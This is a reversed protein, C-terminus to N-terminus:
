PGITYRMPPATMCAEVHDQTMAQWQALPLCATRPGRNPDAAARRQLTRQLDLHEFTLCLKNGCSAVVRDGPQMQEDHHMAFYYLLQVNYKVTCFTAQGDGTHPDDKHKKKRSGTWEFCGAANPESTVNKRDAFYNNLDHYQREGWHAQLIQGTVRKTSGPRFVSDLNPGKRGGANKRPRRMPGSFDIAQEDSAASASSLAFEM